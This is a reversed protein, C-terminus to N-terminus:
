NSDRKPPTIADLKNLAAKIETADLRQKAREEVTTTRENQIKAYALNLLEILELRDQHALIGTTLNANADYDLNARFVDEDNKSLFRCVDGVLKINKMHTYDTACNLDFLCPEIQFAM